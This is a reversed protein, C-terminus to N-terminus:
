KLLEAVRKNRARLARLLRDYHHIRFVARIMLYAAFGFMLACALLLPVLLNTMTAADYMKSTAILVSVVSLPLAAMAIGTRVASLSTRKEALLLQAEAVLLAEDEFPGDPKEEM